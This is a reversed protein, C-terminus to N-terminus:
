GGLFIRQEDALEEDTLLELNHRYEDKAFTLLDELPWDDVEAVLREKISEREASVM